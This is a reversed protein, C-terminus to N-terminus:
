FCYNFVDRDIVLRLYYSTEHSSVWKKYCIGDKSTRTQWM